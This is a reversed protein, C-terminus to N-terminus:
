KITISGGLPLLKRLLNIQVEKLDSVNIDYGEVVNADRGPYPGSNGEQRWKVNIGNGDFNSMNNDEILLENPSLPLGFYNLILVYWKPTAYGINSVFRAVKM